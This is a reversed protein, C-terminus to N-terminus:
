NITWAFDRLAVQWQAPGNCLLVYEGWAAGRARTVLFFLALQGDASVAVRSAAVYTRAEPFYQDVALWDDFRWLPNWPIISFGSPLPADTRHRYSRSNLDCYSLFLDDPLPPCDLSRCAAEIRQKLDAPCRWPYALPFYNGTEPGLLCVPPREEERGCRVEYLAAALVSYEVDSPVRADSDAPVGLPPPSAYSWTCPCLVTQVLLGALWLTRSLTM